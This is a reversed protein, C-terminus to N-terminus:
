PRWPPRAAVLRAVNDEVWQDAQVAHPNLLELKRFSTDHKLGASIRTLPPIQMAHVSEHYILHTAVISPVWNHMLVRHMEIRKSDPRYCGLRITNRVRRFRAWGITVGITALAGDWFVRDIADLTDRLWVADRTM